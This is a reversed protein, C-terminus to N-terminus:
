VQQHLLRTNSTWGRGSSVKRECLPNGKMAWSVTCVGPTLSLIMEGGKTHICANAPIREMTRLLASSVYKRSGARIGHVEAGEAEQATQATQARQAAGESEAFRYLASTGQDARKRWGHWDQFAAMDALWTEVRWGEGGQGAPRGREGEDDSSGIKNGLSVESGVDSEDNDEFDEKSASGRRDQETSSPM